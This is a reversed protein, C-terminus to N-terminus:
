EKEQQEKKAKEEPSEEEEDDDGKKSGDSDSGENDAKAEDKDAAGGLSEEWKQLDEPKMDSKELAFPMALEMVEDDEINQLDLGKFM